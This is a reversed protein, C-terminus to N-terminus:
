HKQEIEAKISLAIEDDPNIKLATTIDEIAREIEDNYLHAVARNCFVECNGPEINLLTTFLESAETYKGRCIKCLGLENITEKQYEEIKLVNEFYKEAIEYEGLSRYALGIFFLLNWWGSFDNVLPLLLDLAENPQEKLVLNYGNEYDVYPELQGIENRIEEIRVADKDLEQHKKWYLQAKVYQQQLKYYYGLKYYSLAFKDNYDLSKEYLAHAEELFYQKEDETTKQETAKKELVSAYIFCNRDDENINILASGYIVADDANEDDFKNICLIIYPPLDFHLIELMEKYDDLYEFDKDTGFVYIIGDIISNISIGANDVESEKKIDELLKGARVPVPIERSTIYEYDKFKIAAGEKLTVFFIDDKKNNFYENLFKDKKNM